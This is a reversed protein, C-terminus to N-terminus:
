NLISHSYPLKAGGRLHIQQLMKFHQADKKFGKPMDINPKQAKGFHLRLNQRREVSSNRYNLRTPVSQNSPSM